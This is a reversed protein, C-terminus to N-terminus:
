FQFVSNETDIRRNAFNVYDQFIDCGIYNRGLKKASVCTTGTGCFPDFVLDGLNTSGKIFYEALKEPFVATHNDCIRKSESGINILMSPIAGKVNPSWDKYENANQNDKNRAFRRKIPKEMRKISVPNYPVRMDDMNFTFDNQKVFWFIYEISNGFRAKNPLFKGKNWYLHEFLKFGTCKTIELVLQYVYMSRFGNIVRDDINLIFSGSNSLVRDFEVVRPIFWDVYEDAPPAEFGNIYKNSIGAYPPSTFILDISNSRMDRCVDICDGRIVKSM